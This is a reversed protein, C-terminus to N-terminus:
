QQDAALARFFFDIPLRLGRPAVPPLLHLVGRLISMDKNPPIVYVHNALVKTRDKVQTVPMKTGRQLLEALIGKHTPDLHQVIVFAMGSNEPVGELFQELAELGGASAGIGVIPFGNEKNLPAAKPPSPAKATKQRDAPPPATKKM